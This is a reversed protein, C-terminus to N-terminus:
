VWQGTELQKAVRKAREPTQQAWRSQLASAAADAWKGESCLRLTNHFGLLGDVGMQYAMNVLAGQRADGASDFWPSLTTRLKVKLADVRHQLIWAIEEDDLGGGKRADVMFGCGITWYGLTDQYASHKWGEDRKLQDIINMRKAKPAFLPPMCGSNSLFTPM